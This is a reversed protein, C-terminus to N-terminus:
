DGNERNGGLVREGRSRSRLQHMFIFQGTLPWNMLLSPGVILNRPTIKSMSPTRHSESGNM